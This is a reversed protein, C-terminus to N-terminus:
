PLLSKTPPGRQLDTVNSWGSLKGTTSVAELKNSEYEKKGNETGTEAEHEKAILGESESKALDEANM